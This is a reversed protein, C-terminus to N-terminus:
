VTSSFHNLPDAYLFVTHTIEELTFNTEKPEEKPKPEEERFDKM